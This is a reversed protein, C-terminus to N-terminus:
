CNRTKDKKEWRLALAQTKKKWIEFTIIYKILGIMTKISKEENFMRKHKNDWKKCIISIILPKAFLYSIESIKYKRYEKCKSYYIKKM